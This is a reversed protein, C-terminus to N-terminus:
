AIIKLGIKYFVTLFSILIVSFNASKFKSFAKCPIEGGSLASRPAPSSFDGEEEGEAETGGSPFSFAPAPAFSASLFAGEKLAMCLTRSRCSAMAFLTFFM